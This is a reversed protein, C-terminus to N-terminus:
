TNRVKSMRQLKDHKFDIKCRKNLKLVKKYNRSQFPSRGTMLMFFIVGASFIDCKEDYKTDELVLIEPAVYGPTGCRRYLYSDVNIFSALGFDIIKIDHVQRKQKLILNEPKLDRHMIGRDHCHKLGTVLNRMLERITDERFHKKQSLRRLLEGGGLFQNVMYVSNKTEHIEYFNVVHTSEGLARM